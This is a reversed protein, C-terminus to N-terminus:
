DYYPEIPQGREDYRKKRVPRGYCDDDIKDREDVFEKRALEETEWARMALYVLEAINAPEPVAVYRVRPPKQDPVEHSEAM